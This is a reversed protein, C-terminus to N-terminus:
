RKLKRLEANFQAANTVAIIDSKKGLFAKKNLEQQWGMYQAEKNQVTAKLEQSHMREGVWRCLRVLETLGTFQAMYRAPAPEDLALAEGILDEFQEKTVPAKYQQSLQAEAAQLKWLLLQDTEPAAIDFESVDQLAIELATEVISPALSQELQDKSKLFGEVIRLLTGKGEANAWILADEFLGYEEDPGFLMGLKLAKEPEKLDRAYKVATEVMPMTVRARRQIMEATREIYRGKATRQCYGLNIALADRSSIWPNITSLASEVTSVVGELFAVNDLAKENHQLRYEADKLAAEGYLRLAEQGLRSRRKRGDSSFETVLAEAAQLIRGQELINVAYLQSDWPLPTYYRGHTAADAAKDLAERLVSTKEELDATSSM